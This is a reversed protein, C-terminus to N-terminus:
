KERVSTGLVSYETIIIDKSLESDLSFGSWLKIQQASYDCKTVTSLIEVFFESIKASLTQVLRCVESFLVNYEGHILLIPSVNKGHM